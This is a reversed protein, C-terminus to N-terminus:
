AGGTNLIKHFFLSLARVHPLLHEVLTELFIAQENEKGSTPRYFGVSCRYSWPTIQYGEPTSWM